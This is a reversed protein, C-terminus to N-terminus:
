KTFSVSDAMSNAVFRMEKQSITPFLPLSITKKFYDEAGPLKDHKFSYYPQRYIPIYHVNVGIGLGRLKDYVFNREDKRGMIKVVYLHHASDVNLKSKLPMIISNNVFFDNYWSVIEKRRIVYQDLRDLQSVGIAAQIDTMRYNFGLDIQEYYWSGDPTNHMKDLDRTIGHGRLLEMKDALSPSNTMAAGGEGTTIIKVPHFSFVTIDSYKCSGISEGKYKSGIAHAADEIIKFGYKQGLNYIEEMDCPQGAFHVPIVIKPLKGEKEAWELKDKLKEVSMLATDPEIDVFDVSAGCYLACNASAVFTIPSTWLIDGPGLGLALCAIHLASTCSNVAISYRAGTYSCLKQEFLPVAPGQTLFDSKLTQIVADIDKQTIEQRGYPIFKSKELKIKIIILGSKCHRLV